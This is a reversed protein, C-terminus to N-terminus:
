RIEWLVLMTRECDHLAPAILPHLRLALRDVDLVASGLVDRRETYARLDAAAPLPDGRDIFEGLEQSLAPLQTDDELRRGAEMVRVRGIRSLVTEEVEERGRDEAVLLLRQALLRGCEREVGRRKPPAVM